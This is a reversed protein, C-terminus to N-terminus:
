LTYLSIYVSLSVSYDFGEGIGQQCLTSPYTMYDEVDSSGSICYGVTVAFADFGFMQAASGCKRIPDERRLPDDTLESTLGEMFFLVTSYAPVYYCGVHELGVPAM